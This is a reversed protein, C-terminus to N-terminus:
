VTELFSWAAWLQSLSSENELERCRSAETRCVRATAPLIAGITAMEATNGLRTTYALEATSPEGGSDEAGLLGTGGANEM